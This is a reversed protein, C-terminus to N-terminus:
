VRRGVLVRYWVPNGDTLQRHLFREDTEFAVTDGFGDRAGDAHQEACTFALWDGPAFADWTAALTAPEIHGGTLAGASTLATLRHGAVLASPDVTDLGGVVFQEYTGPRDREVADRAVPSIDLGVVATMGAARLAAGSVGNGAGVDLCRVDAPTAGAALVRAALAAALTQPSTCGLREHVVHEYLGPVAYVDDYDHIRLTRRDDGRVLVFTEDGQTAPASPDIEVTFDM